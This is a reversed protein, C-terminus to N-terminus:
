TRYERLGSVVLSAGMAGFVGGFVLEVGRWFRQYARSATGTSFLIAYAGYVVMASLAAVPAFAAVQPASLGSGFMFSAIATWGLAAKPNSMVVLFGRRWSALGTVLRDAPPIRINKGRAAAYLARCGIWLLYAGGVLKLGTLIEPQRQIVFGLGLAALIVWIVAGCSVGFAVLLAAKRGRSMGEAAVAILNPGPAIQMAILAALTFAYVKIM